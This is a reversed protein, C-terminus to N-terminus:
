AVLEYHQLKPRQMEEAFRDYPWPWISPLGDTGLYWSKCGTAYITRKAQELREAEFDRMAEGTASIERYQGARYLELLQLLYGM